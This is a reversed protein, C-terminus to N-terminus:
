EDEDDSVEDIKKKHKLLVSFMNGGEAPKIQMTM